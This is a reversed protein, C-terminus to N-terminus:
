VNLRAVVGSFVFYDQRPIAQQSPTQWRHLLRVLGRSEEPGDRWSTFQCSRVAYPNLPRGGNGSGRKERLFIFPRKATCCLQMKEDIDRCKAVSSFVPYCRYVNMAKDEPATEGVAQNKRVSGAGHVPTLTSSTLRASSVWYFSATWRPPM